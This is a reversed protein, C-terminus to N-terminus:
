PTTETLRHFKQAIRDSQSRNFCTWCLAVMYGRGRREEYILIEPRADCLFCGGFLTPTFPTRSDDSM